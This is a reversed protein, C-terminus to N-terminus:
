IVSHYVVHEVGITFVASTFISAHPTPKFYISIFNNKRLTTPMRDNKVTAGLIEPHPLHKIRHCLVFYWIVLIVRLPPMNGKHSDHQDSNSGV